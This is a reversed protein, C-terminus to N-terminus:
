FFEVQLIEGGKTAAAKPTNKSNSSNTNSPTSTGNSTPTASLSSSSASSSSPRKKGTHTVGSTGITNQRPLSTTTPYAQPAEEEQLSM